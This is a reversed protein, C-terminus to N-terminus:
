IITFSGLVRIFRVYDTLEKLASQIREDTELGDLEMFFIYEGLKKKSPRSDIDTLNINYKSFVMLVDCLAGAHNKTSLMLATKSETEGKREKNGGTILNRKKESVDTQLGAEQGIATKEKEKGKREGGALKETEEKKHILPSRCLIYFRTKNDKEDNINQELINLDFLAACTENAIAAVSKDESLAAKQAAYSTSSVEKLEAGKFYKHLYKGCQALAQPHSIITKIKSKDKAKSLLMHNIPLTIEGQVRVKNDKIKLFNDITERVIGEISNEIPLVGISAKDKELAELASKITKQEIKNKVNINCLSLYKLMANHSNSGNPGLYYISWESNESM